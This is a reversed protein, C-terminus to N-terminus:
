RNKISVTLGRSRSSSIGSPLDSSRLRSGAVEQGIRRQTTPAVHFASSIRALSPRDSLERPTASKESAKTTKRLGVYVHDSITLVALRGPLSTASIGRSPRFKIVGAGKEAVDDLM